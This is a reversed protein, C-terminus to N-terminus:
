AAVTVNRPEDPRACIDRMIKWHHMQHVELFRLWQTRTLGGLVPHPYRAPDSAIAGALPELAAVAKSAEEVQPRLEAYDTMEPLSAPSAKARGRPIWGTILILRAVLGPGGVAGSPPKPARLLEVVARDVKLVHEIHNGVSWRSIGLAVDNCRGCLDAIRDLGALARSIRQRPDM